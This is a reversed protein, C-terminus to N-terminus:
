RGGKTTPPFATGGSKRRSAGQKRTFCRKGSRCCRGEQCRCEWRKECGPTVLGPKADGSATQMAQAAVAQKGAEELNAVLTKIEDLSLQGPPQKDGSVGPKTM